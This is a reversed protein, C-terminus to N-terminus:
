QRTIRGALQHFHRVLQEEDGIWRYRKTGDPHSSAISRLLDEDVDAPSGGIGVCELVSFESLENAVKRPSGNTNHGDTLLVVQCSRREGKLLCLAAQLGRRINTAGSECIANIEQSLARANRAETLPCVTKAKCGYAVVGVLADPEEQMLRKIFAIAAKKAAGLRSPKWDTDLMSGSADIVLVCARSGDGSPTHGPGIVRSEEFLIGKLLGLLRSFARVLTNLASNSVLRISAASPSTIEHSNM